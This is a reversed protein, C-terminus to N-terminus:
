TSLIKDKCHLLSRKDKINNKLEFINRSIYTENICLSNKFIYENNGLDNREYIYYPINCYCAEAVASSIGGIINKGKKLHMISLGQLIDAKINNNKLIREVYKKEVASKIKVAFKTYNLKILLLLVEELINIFSKSYSPSTENPVWTMIIWDYLKKNNLNDDYSKFVPWKIIDIKEQDIGKSIFHNKNSKSFAILKNYDYIENAKNNLIPYTPFLSFGDLMFETLVGKKDCLAKIIVFPEFLEGPFVIKKPKYRNILEDYVLITENFFDINKSYYFETYEIFIEILENSFPNNLKSNVSYLGNSLFTKDLTKPLLNLSEIKNINLSTYAGNFINKSNLFIKNKSKNKLNEYTWDNLYLKEPRKLFNLFPLQLISLLQSVNKKEYVNKFERTLPFFDDYIVSSNNTIFNHDIKKAVMLRLPHDKASLDIFGNRNFENNFSKYHRHIQNFFIVSSCSILNGISIGNEISRDIGKSDRFWNFILNQLNNYILKDNKDFSM